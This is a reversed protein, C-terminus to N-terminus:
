LVPMLMIEFMPFVPECRQVNVQAYSADKGLAIWGNGFRMMSM